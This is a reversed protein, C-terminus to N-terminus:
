LLELSETLIDTVQADTLEESTAETVHTELTIGDENVMMGDEDITGM